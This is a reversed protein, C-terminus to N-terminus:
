SFSCRGEIFIPFGSNNGKAIFLIHFCVTNRCHERNWKLSGTRELMLKCLASVHLRISLKRKENHWWITGRDTLNRLSAMHLKSLGLKLEEEKLKSINAIEELTSGMKSGFLVQCFGELSFLLASCFTNLRFAPKM